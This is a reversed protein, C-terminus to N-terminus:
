QESRAQPLWESFCMDSSSMMMKVMQYVSRHTANRGQLRHIHACWDPLMVNDLRDLYKCLLSATCHCAWITISDLITLNARLFKLEHHM